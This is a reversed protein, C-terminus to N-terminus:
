YHELTQIKKLGDENAPLLKKWLLSVLEERVETVVTKKLNNTADV